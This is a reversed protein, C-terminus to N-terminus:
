ICVIILNVTPQTYFLLTIFCVQYYKQPVPVPAFEPNTEVFLRGSSRYEVGVHNPQLDWSVSPGQEDLIERGIADLLTVKVSM